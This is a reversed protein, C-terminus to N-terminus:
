VKALAQYLALNVTLPPIFSGYFRRNSIGEEAPPNEKCNKASFNEEKKEEERGQQHLSTAFAQTKKGRPRSDHGVM